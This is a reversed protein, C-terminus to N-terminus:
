QEVASIAMQITVEDGLILGGGEVANNWSVGFDQRNVSTSAEFGIRRRGQGDPSMGLYEGELVVPRSVGRMTLTGHVRIREGEIEVQRSRFTITPHGVADFFDDSRLHNDRRQNRTDISATQIEVEVSGESLREPHVSLTGSWEGFTGRVRSILHRIRFSLESHSTDIRWTPVPDGVSVGQAEIKGPAVVLCALLAAVTMLKM